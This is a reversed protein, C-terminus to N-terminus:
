LLSRIYSHMEGNKSFILKNSALCAPDMYSGRTFRASTLSSKKSRKNRAECERAYISEDM